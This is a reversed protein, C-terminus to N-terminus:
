DASAPLELPAPPALGASIVKCVETLGNCGCEVGGGDEFSFPQENLPEGSLHIPNCELATNDITVLGGFSVIGARESADIRSATIMLVAPAADHMVVVGDGFNGSPNARTSRIWVGELTAENSLYLGFEHSEEVESRRITVSAPTGTSLNEQVNIGRGLYGTGVDPRTDFVRVAEFTAVAGAVFIGVVHNSEFLANRVVASAPFGGGPAEQVVIGAGGDTRHLHPQTERVAVAELDADAGEIIVGIYHNREILASRMRLKTREGSRPNFAATVGIGMTNDSAATQTDRVISQDIVVDAGAASIGATRNGEIISAGVTLSPRVGTPFDAVGIGRGEWGDSERPLTDRVISRDLTTTSGGGAYIGFLTNEELLSSVLVVDGGQIPPDYFNRVRVGEGTAELNSPAARTERVVTNELTISSGYSAAGADHNREFVSGQVLVQSREIENAPVADIGFGAVDDSVQPQTDRVVVGELTADSGIVFVGACRNRELVSSELALTARIDTAPDLQVAVGVGFTGDFVPQTDRVNSSAVTVDGGTGLVAVEAAAEILSRTVAITAGIANVGISGADHVWVRDVLVGVSFAEIGRWGGTVALDRIETGDADVQITGTVSVLSPCRGWLVVPKSAIDISEVYDGAAIAVIAGSAAAAVGEQITPWPKQASGDAGGPAAADVYQTTGDVPIDGWTGPACPAVQRCSSEGPVEMEGPACAVPPLLPTCGAEGDAVFGSACAEVGPVVDSPVGPPVCGDATSAEGVACDSPPLGPPQCGGGPLPAEGAACSTEPVPVPENGSPSADEACGFTCAAIFSLAGV